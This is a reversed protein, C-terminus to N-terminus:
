FCKKVQKITFCIRDRFTHLVVLVVLVVRSCTHLVQSNMVWAPHLVYIRGMLPIEKTNRQKLTLSIKCSPYLVLTM